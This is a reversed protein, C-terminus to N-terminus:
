QESSQFTEGTLFARAEGVLFLSGAVLIPLKTERAAHFAEAFSEHCEHPPAGAPLHGALERPAVARPTDV